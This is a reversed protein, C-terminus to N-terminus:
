PANWVRLIRFTGLSHQSLTQSLNCNAFPLRVFSVLAGRDISFQACRSSLVRGHRTQGSQIKRHGLLLRAAIRNAARKCLNAAIESAM